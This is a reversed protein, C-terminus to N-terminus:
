TPSRMRRRRERPVALRFYVRGEEGSWIDLKVGLRTAARSLRARVGRANEGQALHLEGVDSGVERIFREFLAKQEQAKPSVRAPPPNVEDPKRRLFEPM